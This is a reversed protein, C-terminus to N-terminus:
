QRKEEHKADSLGGDTLTIAGQRGILGIFCGLDDCHGQLLDYRTEKKRSDNAHGLRRAAISREHEDSLLCSLDQKDISPGDKMWDGGIGRGRRVACAVASGAAIVGVSAVRGASWIDGQAGKFQEACVEGVGVEGGVDEEIEGLLHHSQVSSIIFTAENAHGEVGVELRVAPVVANEKKKTKRLRKGESMTKEKERKMHTAHEQM